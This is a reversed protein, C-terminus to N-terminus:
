NWKGGYGGKLYARNGSSVKTRFKKGFLPQYDLRGKLGEFGLMM